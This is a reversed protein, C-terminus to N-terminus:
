RSMTPATGTPTLLDQVARGELRRAVTTVTLNGSRKIVLKGKSREQPRRVACWHQGDVVLTDFVVVALEPAHLRWADADDM